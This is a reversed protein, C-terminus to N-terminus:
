IWEAAESDSTYDWKREAQAIARLAQEEGSIPHPRYIKTKLQPKSIQSKLNSNQKTITDQNNTIRQYNQNNDM